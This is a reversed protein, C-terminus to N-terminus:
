FNWKTVPLKQDERGNRNMFTPVGITLEGLVPHERKHTEYKRSKLKNLQM